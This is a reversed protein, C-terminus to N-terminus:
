IVEAEDDNAREIGDARVEDKSVTLVFIPLAEDDSYARSEPKILAFVPVIVVCNALAEEDSEAFIM